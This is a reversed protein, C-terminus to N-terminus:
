CSPWRAWRKRPGDPAQAMQKCLWGVADINTLREATRVRSPATSAARRAAPHRPRLDDLLRRRGDPYGLVAAELRTAPGRPEPYSCTGSGTIM